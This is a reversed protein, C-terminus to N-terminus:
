RNQFIFDLFPNESKGRFMFADRTSRSIEGEAVLHKIEFSFFSKFLWSSIRQVTEGAVLLIAKISDATV